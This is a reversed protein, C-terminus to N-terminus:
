RDSVNKLGQLPPGSLGAMKEVDDKAESNLDSTFEYYLLRM